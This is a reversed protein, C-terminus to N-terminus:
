PDPEGARIPMITYAQLHLPNPLWATMWPLNLVHRYNYHVEVLLVGANPADAVRTDLINQATFISSYNGASGATPFLHYPGGARWLIVTNDKAGYVTVIVDDRSPILVIRRGRYTPKDITPDLIRQVQFAADHYFTDAGYTPSFLTADFPDGTSYRRASDRTADLLSLYFNLIFGFEVVGAFLMILIPFAIAVEVLSQGPSKRGRKAPKSSAKQFVSYVGKFTMKMEDKAAGGQFKTKAPPM